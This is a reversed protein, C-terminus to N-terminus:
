CGVLHVFLLGAMALGGALTLILSVTRPRKKIEIMNALFFIYAVLEEPFQERVQRLYAERADPSVGRALFTQTHFLFPTKASSSLARINRYAKLGTSGLLIRKLPIWKLDRYLLLSVIGTLMALSLSTGALTGFVTPLHFLPAGQVLFAALITLLIASLSVIRWSNENDNALRASVDGLLLGLGELPKRGANSLASIEAKM